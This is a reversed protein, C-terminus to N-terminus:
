LGRVPLTPPAKSFVLFNSVFLNVFGRLLILWCLTYLVKGKLHLKELALLCHEVELGGDSALIRCKFLLQNNQDLRAMTHSNLPLLIDWACFYALTPNMLDMHKIDLDELYLTTISLYQTTGFFMLSTFCRIYSLPEHQWCHAVEFMDTSMHVHRCVDLNGIGFQEKTQIGEMRLKDLIEFDCIESISRYKWKNLDPLGGIACLQRCGNINLMQLDELTLILHLDKHRGLGIVTKVNLTDFFRWFVILRYKSKLLYVSDGAENCALKLPSDSRRYGLAVKRHCVGHSKANLAGEIPTIEESRVCYNLIIEKGMKGRRGLMGNQPQLFEFRTIM